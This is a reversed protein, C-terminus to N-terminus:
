RLPVRNEDDWLFVGVGHGPHAGSALYDAYARRLSSDRPLDEIPAEGYKGFIRWMNDRPDDYLASKVNRFDRLFSVINSKEGLIEENKPFLLWSHCYFLKIDKGFVDKFFHYAKHYSEYRVESAFSEGSSPIHINIVSDGRKIETGNITVPDSNYTIIHFELRGLKFLRARLFEYFWGNAFFGPVGHLEMCEDHKYKFDWLSDWMVSEDIGKKKYLEPLYRTLAVYYLFGTTHRSVGLDDSIKHLNRTIDTFELDDVKYFLDFIAMFDENKELICWAELLKNISDEPYEYRKFFNELYNKMVVKM